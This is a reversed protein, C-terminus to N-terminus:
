SGRLLRALLESRSHVGVVHYIQGLHNHVTKPSIHLRRAIQKEALGKLALELVVGQAASLGLMHLDIAALAPGDGGSATEIATELDSELGDDDPPTDALVFSVVKGLRLTQGLQLNATGVREGDVFTGNRSDGDGACRRRCDGRAVAFRQPAPRSFPM